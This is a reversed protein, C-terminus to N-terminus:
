ARPIAVVVQVILLILFTQLLRPRGAPTLDLRPRRDAPLLVEAGHGSCEACRVVVAQRPTTLPRDATM